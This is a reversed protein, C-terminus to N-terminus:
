LFTEAIKLDEPTTIKINEYTGQVLKVPVKEFYEVVMADDTIAVGESILREENLILKDYAATILKREFTQPTQIQWVLSRLPTDAVYGNADSIKITDKVPMGVICARSKKVEDYARGIIDNDVFPRAGDHIFVYSCEWTIAKIGNYVSHYREKGGEAITRIKNFGYKEIIEKQCYQEDDKGTVLVIDDILSDEFAKLSYYLVPKNNILLYQKPVKSNMRKGQGAALVIATTKITSM